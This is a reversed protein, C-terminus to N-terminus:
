VKGRVGLLLVVKFNVRVTDLSVISANERDVTFIGGAAIELDLDMFPHTRKQARRPPVPDM